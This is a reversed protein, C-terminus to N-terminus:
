LYDEPEIKEFEEEIIRNIRATEKRLHKLKGFGAMWPRKSNKGNKSASLKETIAETVFERLPVGREAATAKAKRFIADPIDMTTKMFGMKGYKHTGPM